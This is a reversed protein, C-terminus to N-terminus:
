DRQVVIRLGRGGLVRGKRRKDASRGARRAALALGGAVALGVLVVAAVRARNKRVTGAANGARVPATTLELLRGRETEIDQEIEEIPRM